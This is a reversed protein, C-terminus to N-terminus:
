SSSPVHLVLRTEGSCGTKHMRILGVLIVVKSLWMKVNHCLHVPKALLKSPLAFCAHYPPSKLCSQYAPEMPLKLFLCPHIFPLPFPPPSETPSKLPLCPRIFPMTFPFCPPCAQFTVQLCVRYAAQSAPLSAHLACSLSSPPPSQLSVPLCVGCAAHSAPLSAHLARSPTPIQYQSAIAMPLM